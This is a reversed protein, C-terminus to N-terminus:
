DIIEFVLHDVKIKNKIFRFGGRDMPQYVFIKVVLSGLRITAILM